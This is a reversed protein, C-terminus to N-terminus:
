YSKGLPENNLVFSAYASATNTNDLNTIVVQYQVIDNEDTVPIYGIGNTPEYVFSEYAKVFFTRLNTTHRNEVIQLEVRMHISSSATMEMLTGACNLKIPPSSLTISDGPRIAINSTISGSDILM